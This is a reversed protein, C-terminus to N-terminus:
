PLCGINNVMFWQSIIFFIHFHSKLRFYRQM